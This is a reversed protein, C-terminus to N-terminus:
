QAVNKAWGQSGMQSLIRKKSEGWSWPLYSFRSLATKRRTTARTTWKHKSELHRSSNDCRATKAVFLFSLPSLLASALKGDNWRESVSSPRRRPSAGKERKSLCYSIPFCGAGDDGEKEPRLDCTAFVLATSNSGQSLLLPSAISTASIFHLTHLKSKSTHMACHRHWVTPLVGVAVLNGNHTTQPWSGETSKTM